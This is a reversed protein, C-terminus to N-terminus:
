GKRGIIKICNHESPFRNGWLDRITLNEEKMTKKLYDYLEKTAICDSLARHESKSLNFEEALTALKYDACDFLKKTWFRTDMYPNKLEIGFAANIFRVDFSTNHGLLVDDGIFSLVEEKVDDIRPKGAVMENTIGTLETILEPVSEEPQILQTYKKVIENNRVRLMSIEIIECYDPSLGTTETDIVCYDDIIRQSYNTKKYERVRFLTQKNEDYSVWEGVKFKWMAYFYRPIVLDSALGKKNQLTLCYDREEDSNDSEVEVTRVDIILYRM